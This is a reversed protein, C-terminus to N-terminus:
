FPTYETEGEDYAPKKTATQPGSGSGNAMEFDFVTFNVYSQKTEKNYSTTVDCNLIKIRDKEKLKTAKQHAEGVFACYGSFDQEYQDNKKNKRNSSLRVKSMNGNKGEEVGWVTMYNGQRFGM